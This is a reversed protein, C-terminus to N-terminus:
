RIGHSERDLRILICPESIYLFFRPFRGTVRGVSQPEPMARDTSRAVGFGVGTHIYIGSDYAALFPECVVLPM